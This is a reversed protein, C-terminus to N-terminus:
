AYESLEKLNVIVFDFVRVQREKRIENQAQILDVALTHDTVFMTCVRKTDFHYHIGYKKYGRMLSYKYRKIQKIPNLKEFPIISAPM